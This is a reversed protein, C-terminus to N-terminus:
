RYQAYVLAAMLDYFHTVRNRGRRKSHYLAQDAEDILQAPTTTGLGLTTVGFSATIPRLRWAHRVGVDPDHGPDEM